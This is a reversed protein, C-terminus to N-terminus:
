LILRFFVNILNKLNKFFIINKCVNENQPFFGGSSELVKCEEKHEESQACEISCFPYRCFSCPFIEEM